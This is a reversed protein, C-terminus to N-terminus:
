LVIASFFCRKGVAKLNTVQWGHGEKYCEVRDVIEESDKVSDNVTDRVGGIVYITEGLVVAASYGRPDNMSEGIMWKGKRPDFVEVTQVMRAEDYGGIAYLKENMVAVSHCARRSSMSELRTWSHERHDLREVSNLYNKGDYGGVVYIMGNVEAATPAFRKHLMSRTPIWRGVDLDFMEVDSLCEVGNAGGIAFIKNNLSAGALSGKRQNLSPRSIWQNSLPNYSEVTDYWLNNSDVGGLLYLEGNLKVASAYSRAFSMPSLTEMLDRSLSYCDLDSLWSSGNFGGVIFISESLNSHSENILEFETDETPAMSPSSGSELMKCRDRLQRIEEKSEVLEKELSSVKQIQNLQSAKLEEMERMLKAVISQFGSSDMRLDRTEESSGNDESCVEIEEEHNELDKTESSIYSCESKPKSHVLEEEYIERTDENAPAEFAQGDLCPAVCQAEEDTSAEWLQHEGDLCISSTQFLSSWSKQQPPFSTNRVVSSYSRGCSSSGWEMNSGDLPAFGAEVAAAENNQGELRMGPTPLSQFLTSWRTTNRSSSTSATVPSSSFLNILNRTQAKDLEFWFHRSEYYNASILPKFQDELMPQCQMRIRIRVQAAYPTSEMDDATWGHPNINMQGTSVAEFVGHLKRDSYNFLFLPLGPDINRVYSYHPAPLGFIQNCYCEKITNNKCGFIVGGLDGKRLNRATVSCNVTWSLESKKKITHKKGKGM